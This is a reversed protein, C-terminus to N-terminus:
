MACLSSGQVLLTSFMQRDQSRSTTAMWWQNQAWAVKVLQFAYSIYQLWLFVCFFLHHIIVPLLTGTELVIVKYYWDVSLSQESIVNRSNTPLGIGWFCNQASITYTCEDSILRLSTPFLHIVSARTRPNIELVSSHAWFKFHSFTIKGKLKKPYLGIWTFFFIIIILLRYPM